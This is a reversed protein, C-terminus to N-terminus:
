GDSLGAIVVDQAKSHVELCEILGCSSLVHLPRNPELLNWKSVYSNSVDTVGYQVVYIINLHAYNTYLCKVKTDKLFGDYVTSLLFKGQSGPVTSPSLHKTTLSNKSMINSITISTKMLFINLQEYDIPRINTVEFQGLERRDASLKNIKQLSNEFAINTHDADIKKTEFIEVNGCGLREQQYQSSIIEKTTYNPPWQTWMTSQSIAATQCEQEVKDDITQSASQSTNSHGYIKMYYDYAIPKQEFLTYSMTDLTIKKMIELGRLMRKSKSKRAPTINLISESHIHTQEDNSVTNYSFFIYKM